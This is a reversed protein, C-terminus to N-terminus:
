KYQVSGLLKENYNFSNIGPLLIYTLVLFKITILFFSNNDNTLFVFLHSFFIIM